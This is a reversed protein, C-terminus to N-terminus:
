SPMSMLLAAIKGALEIVPKGIAGVNEAAKKLGDVSLQWWAKRPAKSTAEAVLTDLDRAAQQATEKPLTASMKEVATALQKLLDKLEDPVQASAAKNFSNRISHAAVVDGHITANDGIQIENKSMTVDGEIIVKTSPSLAELKESVLKRTEDCIEPLDRGEAIRQVILKTADFIDAHPLKELPILCHDSLSQKWLLIAPLSTAEVKLSRFENVTEFASVKREVDEFSYYVDLHDGTLCNLDEWYAQIFKPFDGVSLFLYVAHYPITQYRSFPSVAPRYTKNRRKIQTGIDILRQLIKREGQGSVWKMVEASFSAVNQYNKAECFEAVLQQIQSTPVSALIDLKSHRDQLWSIFEIAQISHESMIGLARFLQRFEPHNQIQGEYFSSNMLLRVSEALRRAEMEVDNRHAWLPETGDNQRFRERGSSIGDRQGASIMLGERNRLYDQILSQPAESQLYQNFVQLLDSGIEQIIFRFTDDGELDRSRRPQISSARESIYGAFGQREAFRLFEQLLPHLQAFRPNLNKERLYEICRGCKAYHGMQEQIASERVMPCTQFIKLIYTLDYTAVSEGRNDRLYMLAMEYIQETSLQHERHHQRTNLWDLFDVVQFFPVPNM